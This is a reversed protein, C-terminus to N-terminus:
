IHSDPEVVFLTLTSRTLIVALWTVSAVWLEAYGLLTRSIYIRVRALSLIVWSMTRRPPAFTKTVSRKKRWVFIRSPWARALFAGFTMPNSM